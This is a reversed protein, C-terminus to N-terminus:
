HRLEEVAIDAEATTCIVGSAIIGYGDESGDLASAFFPNDSHKIWASEDDNEQQWRLPQGLGPAANYDMQEKLDYINPLLRM